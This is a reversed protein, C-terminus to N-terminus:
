DAHPQGEPTAGDPGLPLWVRMGLGPREGWAFYPIAEVTTSALERPRSIPLKTAPASRYPWEIGRGDDRIRAEFALRIGEDVGPVTGRIARVVLPGDVELAEVSADDPLDADEVAYVLPGRELAVSHRLADIRPDPFTVRPEMPLRLAIRDGASWAREVELISAGPRTELPRGGLTATADRCWHPIRLSLRWPRAPSEAIEIDVDGDWPFATSTRLAIRGGALPVTVSGTAYQHVQVGEADTTALLDPSTALFRMLNPPCCSVEFWASRRTSAPGECVEIGASRRQLPNSYFFHCGDSGLGSLVANYATREILDAFREEGTALLLRWALMVSGIAACTEGYARDPPLEFAAGFAEDRHRSGLAGTLHTRSAHMAEWRGIVAALLQRDDTEIAVDAVGCDLYIQRVAHGAPERAARVPEHDQWYRDGFRVRALLGRGRREVLLSALELHRSRGTTRYLEVLAMEIGAHGDVLERRGPGLEQWIRDVYREVVRLLRDDGLSRQWAVAAQALHGALYLEHGWELDTFELGPRNVQYFTDLYGDARQARAVLDILPDALGLLRADPVQGLEWGVAELWKYVDSDLFPATTGNDDNGGAYSGPEGTALRFNLVNGVRELQAAGHPMSAEHNTRRRDAWFGGEIASARLGIPRLRVMASETPVVPAVVRDRDRPGTQRDM